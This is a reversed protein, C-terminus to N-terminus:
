IPGASGALHFESIHIQNRSRVVTIAQPAITRVLNLVALADNRSPLTIVVMRLQKLQLHEPVEASSAAGLEARYPEWFYHSSCRLLARWFHRRGLDLSANGHFELYNATDFNRQWKRSLASPL